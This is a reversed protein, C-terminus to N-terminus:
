SVSCLLNLKTVADPAMDVGNYFDSFLLFCLTLVKITVRILHVESLTTMYCVQEMFPIVKVQLM